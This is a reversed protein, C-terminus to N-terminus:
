QPGASSREFLRHAAECLPTGETHDKVATVPAGSVMSPLYVRRLLQLLRHPRLGSVSYISCQPVVLGISHNSIIWICCDKGVHGPTVVLVVGRLRVM